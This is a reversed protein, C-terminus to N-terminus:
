PVCILPDEFNVSLISRLLQQLDGPQWLAELVMNIKGGEEM